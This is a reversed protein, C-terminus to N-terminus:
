HSSWFLKYLHMVLYLICSFVLLVIGFHRTFMHAEELSFKKLPAHVVNRPLDRVMGGQGSRMSNMCIGCRNDKLSVTKGVLTKKIAYAYCKEPSIWFKGRVWYCIPVVIHDRSNKYICYNFALLMYKYFFVCKM